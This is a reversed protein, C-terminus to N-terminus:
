FQSKNGINFIAKKTTSVFIGSIFQSLEKNCTQGNNIENFFVIEFSSRRLIDEISLVERRIKEDGVGCVM